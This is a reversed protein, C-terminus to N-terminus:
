GDSDRRGSTLTAPGLWIEYHGPKVWSSNEYGRIYRTTADIRQWQQLLAAIKTAGAADTPRFYRVQTRQPGQAVVVEAKPFVYGHGKLKAALHQAAELQAPSRVHVYIRPRPVPDAEAAAPPVFAQGPRDASQGGRTDRTADAQRAGETLDRGSPLRQALDAGRPQAGQTMVEAGTPQRNGPEDTTKLPGREPRSVTLVYGGWGALAVVCALLISWRMLRRQSSPAIRRRWDRTTSYVRVVRRTEPYNRM